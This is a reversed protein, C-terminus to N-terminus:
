PVIAICAPAPVATPEGVAELRGTQRDIRFLTVSNGPMNACLLLTGDPVIALNQPGAGRSPVIEVLTLLGDAAVAYVAISDHGRNTAYLFRGDVGLALDATLNQPAGGGPLTSITQGPTLRGTAPDCGCVAITSTLENLAYLTRGDSTFRLHRPGSGPPMKVARPNAPTVTGTAADLRYCVIEDTGLDAAYAFRSTGDPGPPAPIFTHAHPAQQRAPDVSSGQHKMFSAIPALTGDAAIPFSAVDGSTYNALLLMRGSPDTALHCPAAGLTSQRGLPVLTGARDAIRWAAVEGPEPGGFQKAWISYLTRRGPALALFFPHPIGGTEAAAVLSGAHPDLHFARIGGAEAPAFMSVFVLLPSHSM